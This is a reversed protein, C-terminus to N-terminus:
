RECGAVVLWDDIAHATLFAGVNLHRILDSADAVSFSWFRIGVESIKLSTPSSIKRLFTISKHGGRGRTPQIVPYAFICCM